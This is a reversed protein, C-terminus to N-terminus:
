SLQQSAASDDLAALIEIPQQLKQLYVQLQQKMNTDLM